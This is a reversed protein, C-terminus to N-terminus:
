SRRAEYNIDLGVLGYRDLLAALSDVAAGVWADPSVGPAPGWAFGAGALSLMGRQLGHLQRAATDLQWPDAIWRSPLDRKPCAM